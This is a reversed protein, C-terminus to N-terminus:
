KKKPVTGVPPNQPTGGPKVSSGGGPPGGPKIPPNGPASGLSPTAGCAVSPGDCAGPRQVAAAAPASRVPPRAAAAVDSPNFLSQLPIVAASGALAGGAIAERPEACPGPPALGPPSEARAM